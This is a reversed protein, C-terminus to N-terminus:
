IGSAKTLHDLTISSLGAGLRAEGRWLCGIRQKKRTLSM